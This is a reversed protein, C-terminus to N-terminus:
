DSQAFVDVGSEIDYYDGKDDTYIHRDLTLGTPKDLCGAMISTHSSNLERWMLLSGCHKCFGREANSSAQYWTLNDGGTIVLKSNHARTAAVFHGTQKRCQQCHCAVVNRSVCDIDLTIRGCLCSGTVPQSHAMGILGQAM